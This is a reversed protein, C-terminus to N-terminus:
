QPAYMRISQGPRSRSGARDRAVPEHLCQLPIHEARELQQRGCEPQAPQMRPQSALHSGGRRLRDGDLEPRHQGQWGRLADIGGAAEGREIDEDFGLMGHPDEHIAPSGVGVVRDSHRARREGVHNVGRTPAGSGALAADADQVESVLTAGM